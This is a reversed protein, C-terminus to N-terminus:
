ISTNNYVSDYLEQDWRFEIDYNGDKYLNFLAVNWREMEPYISTTITHLDILDLDISSDFKSVKISKKEKNVTYSGKYSSFNKGVNIYLTAKEWGDEISKKINKIILNYIDEKSKM